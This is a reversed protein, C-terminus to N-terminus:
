SEYIKEMFRACRFITPESFTGGILQAGVPLNKEISGVPVSMAPLGALSSPITYSDAMSMEMPDKVEGFKFPPTPTTPSFILDISSFIKEFEKKIMSRVKLAKLYYSEYNGSSLISTGLLIRRKVEPGFGQTRSEIYMEELTQAEPARFGYRVGDYRALNSSIEAPAIIYYTALAQELSPLSIEKVEAGASVLKNSIELIRERIESHLTEGMYEKPIGIKLGKVGEEISDSLEYGKENLSTSDKPDHGSILSYVLATDEVSSALVGIQDISSALASLGYRSIRGYTPRLGCVGCFSAPQRVSGGTDSGLAIPVDGSAVAAASGSSSGGPVRDPHLPNKTPGFYSTEGSSGMAFEDMNTKGIVIAGAEELKEVATGTYPSFYNELIKSGCTMKEGSYLLNDKLAVPIGALPGPNKGANLLSDIEQARKSARDLTLTIYSNYKEQSELVQASVQKVLSFAGDSNVKKLLKKIM